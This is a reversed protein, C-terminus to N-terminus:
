PLETAKSSDTHPTPHVRANPEHLSRSARLVARRAVITARAPVVEAFPSGQRAATVMRAHVWVRGGCWWRVLPRDAVERLRIRRPWALSGDWCQEAPHGIGDILEAIDLDLVDRERGFDGGVFLIERHGDVVVLRRLAFSPDREALAGPRPEVVPRRALRLWLKIALSLRTRGPNLHPRPDDYGDGNAVHTTRRRHASKLVHSIPTQPAPTACPRARQDQQRDQHRERSASLCRM